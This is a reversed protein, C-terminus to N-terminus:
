ASVPSDDFLGNGIRRHYAPEICPGSRSSELRRYCGSIVPDSFRHRPHRSGYSRDLSYASLTSTWKPDGQGTCYEREAPLWAPAAEEASERILLLAARLDLFFLSVRRRSSTIGDLFVGYLERRGSPNAAWPQGPPKPYVRANAVPEIARHHWGAAIAARGTPRAFEAGRDFVSDETWVSATYRLPDRM